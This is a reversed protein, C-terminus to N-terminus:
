RVNDASSADAPAPKEGGADSCMHELGAALSIWGDFSVTDGSEDALNGAPRTSWHELEITLKRVEPMSNCIATLPPAQRLPCQRMKEGHTCCPIPPQGAALVTPLHDRSSIALKKYIRGLRDEVTKPTILLAQAIDRNSDGRAALKAIRQGSALLADRGTLTM